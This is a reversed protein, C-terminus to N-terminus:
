YVQEQYAKVGPVPEFYDVCDPKGALFWALKADDSKFQAPIYMRIEPNGNADFSIDKWLLFGCRSM